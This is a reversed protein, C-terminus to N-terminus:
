SSSDVFTFIDVNAEDVKSAGEYVMKHEGVIIGIYNKCTILLLDNLSTSSLFITCM